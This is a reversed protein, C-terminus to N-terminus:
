NASLLENWFERDAAVLLGGGVKGSVTVHTGNPTPAFTIDIHQGTLKRGLWVSISLPLAIRLKPKYSLSTATHQSLKLEHHLDTVLHGGGVPRRLRETIVRQLRAAAEEPTGSTSFEYSFTRAM